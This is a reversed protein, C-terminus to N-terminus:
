CVEEGRLVDPRGAPCADIEIGVAPVEARDDAPELFGVADSLGVDVLEAPQAVAPPVSRLHPLVPLDPQMAVGSRRVEQETVAHVDRRDIQFAHLAPVPHGVDPPDGALELM